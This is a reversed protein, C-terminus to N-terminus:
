RDPVGYARRLRALEAQLELLVDARTPDPVLNHMEDPDSLLDYLEWEGLDPFHILKYRETRVGEHAAVAHTAEGSYSYYISSRWADPARGELLPALSLGQMDAPPEVGALALLTPALDLNQVLHRDHVGATTVGPWRVVLPVRLAPEYMFRKDYWGHEGLFFGQDSTYIVITDDELGAEALGELLRGLGEDLGAVCRLYDALYRQFKWRVLQEGALPAARFAENRPGYASEWDVRQAPSMRELLGAAWRDPGQAADEPPDLKLDYSPFLHRAITMEAQRAAASRGAHDDFLTAPEPLRQGEYLHLQGPAPMWPRHPAKFQCMLLFPREPDRQEDLWQLALDTTVATVHGDFSRRGSASRFEPGYYHGQGPLIEWHDFGTPDSKLHWKGILATQYGARQLLKPFTVQGGDFVASNDVVGNRHSHRGTLVVARAPACIANTCFAADFVLGEAALRDISPTRAVSSGYAGVAATAHDDSYVFLINPRRPRTPEPEAARCAALAGLLGVLLAL